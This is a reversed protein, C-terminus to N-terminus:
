PTSDAGGGFGHMRNAWQLGIITGKARPLLLLSLIITLPIWILTQLWVAPHWTSDVFLLSGIIIHGVILIVFYPAADDARQHFLALDCVPCHDNVELYSKFMAGEGCRPCRCHFGRLMSRLVNRNEADEAHSYSETHMTM